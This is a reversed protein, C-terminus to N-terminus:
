EYVAGQDISVRSGPGLYGLAVVRCEGLYSWRRCDAGCVHISVVIGSSTLWAFWVCSYKRCLAIKFMVM